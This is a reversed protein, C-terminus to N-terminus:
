RAKIVVRGALGSHPPHYTIETGSAWASPLGGLVDRACECLSAQPCTGDRLLLQGDDRAMWTQDEDGFGSCRRDLDRAMVATDFMRATIRPTPRQKPTPADLPAPGPSYLASPVVIPAPETVSPAIARVPLDSPPGIDQGGVIWAAAIVAVGSSALAAIRAWPRSPPSKTTPEPNAALADIEALRRPFEQRLADFLADTPVRRRAMALVLEEALVRLSWQPNLEAAMTQGDPLLRLFRLLSPADFLDVLLRVLKNAASETMGSLSTCSCAHM